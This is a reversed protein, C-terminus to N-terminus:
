VYWVFPMPGGPLTTGAEATYWVDGNGNIGGTGHGDIHVDNGSIVFGAKLNQFAIPISNNRWYDLDHTAFLWEGQWDILVDDLTIHLVSSINFTQGAPFIVHGNVGCAHPAFAAAIQPVDDHGPGHPHLYL